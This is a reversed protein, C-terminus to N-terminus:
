DRRPTVVVTTNHFAAVRWFGSDKQFVCMSLENHPPADTPPDFDRM